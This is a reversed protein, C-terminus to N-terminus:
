DAHWEAASHPSFVADGHEPLAGLLTPSFGASADVGPRPDRAVTFQIYAELTDRFRMLGRPQRLAARTPEAASDGGRAETSAIARAALEGAGASSSRTSMPAEAPLPWRSLRAVGLVELNM